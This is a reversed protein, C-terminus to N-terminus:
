DKWGRIRRPVTVAVDETAVGGAADTATIRITYVRGDGSLSREARLLVRHPDIVQWDPSTLGSLGQQLVPATVPEDSTVDLTTTVAGCADAATYNITVPVMQHLPLLLRALSASAGTITPVANAAVISTSASNNSGDPDATGAVVTANNSLAAGDPAACGLTAVLTVVEFAGAALLPFTVTPRGAAGGCVGNGSASCSVLGFPSPLHDTVVVNQSPALGDNTITITYTVQAGAVVTPVDASKALRVDASPPPFRFSAVPMDHDSSREPREPDGAYLSDPLEPFDANGRAIAYRQLYSAAVSNVLVHDLAQPTGEFIFSYRESAPLTDTLNVFDPNVLDPSEDVVLEDDPTPTGLLTAIPDTYGDNFQYANYDGISIVAVGPNLTQLEQLLGATSEAQAKRKARVRPGDGGVLEIDIFSRLHNVVIIVRRPNLGSPEVTARLVLPPRDHLTAPQGTTPDVFTDAAREQSVADIRVRATKVLFAVNQTGDPVPVLVAEYAPNPEGAAVADSNVQAALTQLTALDLIEIHGIVDPSRMLQRIALAAKRRRTDSGAFNEINFGGVTFEDPAPAPVAVGIMNAGAAPPSEPLLKYAGFSFDLPGTVNTIVVNSTVPLVVAGLLGESDLMIREPNGDFRPICCDPVGSTPDPPVPDSVPIGPERLPRPVGTLVTAIEGFGDTPAVSTLSVAQLRMAEFRELQDTPGAPDLDATTLVVAAPLPLTNASVIVDGPLSSEVQTLSFFEGVTGRATVQNGVGVAPTAATFVFIGESTAPNADMEADPAQLFFGNSKIGTVLGTTVVDSGAFPSVPGSGQIDHIAAAVPTCSRAPAASNRPLPNGIAFDVSNNDSDFCGGRKRFVSTTNTPAATPGIGEFCTAAAGYGVLDATGSLPCQGAIAATTVQLAVKGAGAAMAITGTADPAPLATTGGSGMALQILYYGGPAISGTLPTVLWTGTGAASTYQISWDALSVAASGRNFLEVFDHTLTAGANGGGGYVQSIVVDTLVPPPEDDNVIRGAAEADAVLAGSVNSLQALFTEDPEVIADGNVTVAFAYSTQGAPISVSTATRAVYDGDGVTAATPGTGDATAVDFTVGAHAGTSVTVNFSATTTGGTGEVVSADAISVTPAGGGHPILAFDDAALGDDAGSANLDTWRLRFTTGPPIALGAIVSMVTTRNATANGDLPGVSGATAPAIFDLADVDVWTGSSLSTADQSYQFDIRDLRALAGIRWQEGTYAIELSTITQGTDNSFLAGFVPILSGSQLGGLARDSSGAQGFSYTDGANGGGTGATYTTNANTGTEAFEWGAPLASSTGSSVLTDFDQGYPVDLATLSVSSGAQALTLLTSVSFALLISAGLGACRRICVPLLLTPM